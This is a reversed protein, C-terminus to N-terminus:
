NKQIVKLDQLLPFLSFCHNECGAPACIADSVSSVSVYFLPNLRGNLIKIFKKAMSNLLCMLFCLIIYRNKLKKNLGVYYM